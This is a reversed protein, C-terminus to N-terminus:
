HTSQLTLFVTIGLCWLKLMAILDERPASWCRSVDIGELLMAPEHVFRDRREDRGHDRM